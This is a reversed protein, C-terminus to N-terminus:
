TKNSETCYTTPFDWQLSMKYSMMHYKTEQRCSPKHGFKVKGIENWLLLQLHVSSESMTM